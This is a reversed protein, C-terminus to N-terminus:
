QGEESKLKLDRLFQSALAQLEEPSAEEVHKRVAVALEDARENKAPMRLEHRQQKDSHQKNRKLIWEDPTVQFDPNSLKQQILLTAILSAEMPSMKAPLKEGKSSPISRMVNPTLTILALRLDRVQEKSTRAYEPSQFSDALRNIAIVIQAESVGSHKKARYNREASVVADVVSEQDPTAIASSSIIVKALEPLKTEDRDADRALRDIRQFVGERTDPNSQARIIQMGLTIVVLVLVYRGM